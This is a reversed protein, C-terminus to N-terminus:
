HTYSVSLSEGSSFVAAAIHGAQHSFEFVPVGLVAAASHAAAVGALFCPMYSGEADRPRASCGVASYNKVPESASLREMLEPLNSIHYFVADSQRLGLQGQRVKLPSKLNLVVEGNDVVSVSTTYNSTDIGLFRPM